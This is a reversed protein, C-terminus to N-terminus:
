RGIEGEMGEERKGVGRKKREGRGRKTAKGVEREGKRKRGIWEGRRGGEGDGRRM